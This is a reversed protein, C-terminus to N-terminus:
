ATAVDDNEGAPDKAWNFSKDCLAIFRLDTEGLRINDGTTLNEASVVPKDNLRVINSKGGHGLHFEHTQPDYAIAAHNERSIAADGFDLQVAQDEGRGIPSLGTYLPFWAGRGKGKSVVLWGVPFKEPGNANEAPADDFLSVVDAQTTDFGILRTKNRRNRKPQESVATLDLEQEASSADAAPADMDWISLDEASDKMDASVRDVIDLGDGAAGSGSKESALDKIIQEMTEIQDSPQQTPKNQKGKFLSSFIGM